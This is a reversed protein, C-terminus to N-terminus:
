HLSKLALAVVVAKELIGLAGQLFKIWGPTTDKTEKQIDKMMQKLNEEAIERPSKQSEAIVERLSIKRLGEIYPINRPDINRQKDELFKWMSIGTSDYGSEIIKRKPFTKLTDAYNREQALSAGATLIFFLM